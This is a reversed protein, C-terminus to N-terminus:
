IRIPPYELGQKTPEDAGPTKSRDSINNEYIVIRPASRGPFTFHFRGNRGGRSGRAAAAERWINASTASSGLLSSSDARLVRSCRDPLRGKAILRIALM